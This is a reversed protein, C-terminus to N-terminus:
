EENENINEEVTEITEEFGSNDSLQDLSEFKKSLVSPETM